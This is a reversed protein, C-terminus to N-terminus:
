ASVPTATEPGPPKLRTKSKRGDDWSAAGLMIVVVQHVFRDTLAKERDADDPPLDLIESAVGLMLQIILDALLTMSENSLVGPPVIEGIDTTLDSVFYGMDRRIAARIKPSGGGRERVIFAFYRRNDRVFGMYVAVSRRVIEGQPLGAKRVERLLLRLTPGIEDLLALGLEEMGDFHRYFGNPTIGARRAVKRLSLSTFSREDGMLDLAAEFLRNRTREKKEERSEPVSRHRRM